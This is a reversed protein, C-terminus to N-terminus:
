TNTQTIKLIQEGARIEGVVREDDDALTEDILDERETRGIAACHDLFSRTRAAKLQSTLFRQRTELVSLGLEHPDHVDEALDPWPDLQQPFLYCLPALVLM